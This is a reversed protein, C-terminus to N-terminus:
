FSNKGLLKVAELRGSELHIYIFVCCHFISFYKRQDYDGTESGWPWSRTSGQSAELAIYPSLFATLVPM